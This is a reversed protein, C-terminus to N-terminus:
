CIRSRSTALFKGNGVLFTMFVFDDIIRELDYTKPDLKYAFELELYERLISLHLLQFDSQKTFKKVEKLANENKSFGGSFDIIERLLTFHPEHSVLGLMILDADQGYMCHRTNPRYHPQNRMDRIHQMIKHEGEGPVEPGSFIVSLNRWLPDEKLKKRIFYRIASSIRLLFETGPTICNSDFAGSYPDEVNNDTGSNGNSDLPRIKQKAKTAEALDKASRFRRSRQQNMKARPAVGDIAMFVSVKPKVIQTVIRDLYHMIGLVM